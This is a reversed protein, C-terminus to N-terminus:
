GSKKKRKRKASGHGRHKSLPEKCEHIVNSTEPDIVVEHYIDNDRDIIRSLKVWKGSKRHLDNGSVEEIFPRGGVAHRGKLRLKEKFTISDRLAVHFKRIKSGCVPCPKRRDAPCSTDEELELGCAGCFVSSDDMPM